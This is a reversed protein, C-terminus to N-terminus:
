TTKLGLRGFGLILQAYVTTSMYWEDSPLTKSIDRLLLPECNKKRSTDMDFTSFTNNCSPLDPHSYPMSEPNLLSIFPVYLMSLPPVINAEAM